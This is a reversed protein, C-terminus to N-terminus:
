EFVKVFIKLCAEYIHQTGALLSVCLLLQVFRHSSIPGSWERFGSNRRAQSVDVRYMGFVIVSGFLAAVGIALDIYMGGGALPGRLTASALVALFGMLGIMVLNPRASRSVM